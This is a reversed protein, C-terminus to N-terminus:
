RRIKLLTLIVLAALLLPVIANALDFPADLPSNDKRDNPVYVVPTRKTLHEGKPCPGAMSHPLASM